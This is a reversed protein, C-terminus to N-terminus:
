TNKETIVPVIFKPMAEGKISAKLVALAAPAFIKLIMSLTGVILLEFFTPFLTEFTFPFIEKM